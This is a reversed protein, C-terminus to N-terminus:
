AGRRSIPRARAQVRRRNTLWCSTSCIVGCINAQEAEAANWVARIEDISPTYDRSRQKPKASRPIAACPNLEIIREEVMWDCLRSLAGYLHGLESPSANTERLLRRILPPGLESAPLSEVGM